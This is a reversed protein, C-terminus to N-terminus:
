KAPSDSATPTTAPAVAAAPADATPDAPAPQNAKKSINVARDYYAKAEKDKHESHCVKALGILDRVLDVHELGIAKEHVALAKTYVSDAQAGDGQAYYFNALNALSEASANTDASLKQAEDAADKYLKEAAAKDGKKAAEDAQTTLKQWQAQDLAVEKNGPVKGAEQEAVGGGGACASLSMMIAVFTASKALTKLDINKLQMSTRKQGGRGSLSSVPRCFLVFLALIAQL